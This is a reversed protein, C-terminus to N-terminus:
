CKENLWKILDSPSDSRLIVAEERERIDGLSHADSAHLVRRGGLADEAVPLGRWIEVTGFAPEDPFFGLNVLLGNGGRNVHAPVAAGGFARIREAAELLPLDTAGILMAEEEAVVNDEGDMVYQHGFYAPRNKMPPLHARLTEGFALAQGVQAFYGLLHVEERTTVEVGPIFLLGHMRCADAAAPLNGTANHDTVAIMDLGKLRAMAAINAPTMDDDGCPSLCSHIHLDAALLRGQRDKTGRGSARCGPPQWADASKM